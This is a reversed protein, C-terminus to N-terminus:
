RVADSTEAWSTVTCALASGLALSSELPRDTLEPAETPTDRASAVTDGCILARTPLPLPWIIWALESVTDAVWARGSPPLPLDASTRAVPEAPPKSSPTSAVIM